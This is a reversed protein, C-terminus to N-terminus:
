GGNDAEGWPLRGEYHGRVHERFQDAVGVTAISELVSEEAEGHRVKVPTVRLDHWVRDCDSCVLNWRGKVCRTMRVYSAVWVRAWRSPPSRWRLV